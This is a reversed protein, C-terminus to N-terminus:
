RSGSAAPETQANLVVVLGKAKAYGVAARILSLYGHDGVAERQVPRGARGPVPRHERAV